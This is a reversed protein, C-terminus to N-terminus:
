VPIFTFFKLLTLTSYLLYRNQLDLYTRKKNEEGARKSRVFTKWVVLFIALEKVRRIELRLVATRNAPKPAPVIAVPKRNFSFM